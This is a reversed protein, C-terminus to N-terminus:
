GSEVTLLWDVLRLCDAMRRGRVLDCDARAAYWVVLRRDGVPGPTINM